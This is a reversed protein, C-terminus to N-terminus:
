TAVIAIRPSPSQKPSSARTPASGSREAVTTASSGDSVYETVRLSRAAKRWVCGCTLSM